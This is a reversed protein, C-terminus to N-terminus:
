KTTMAMRMLETLNSIAITYQQRYALSACFSSDPLFSELAELPQLAPAITAMTISHTINIMMVATVRLLVALATWVPV